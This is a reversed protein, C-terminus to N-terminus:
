SQWVLYKEPDPLALHPSNTSASLSSLKTKGLVKRQYKFLIVLVSAEDLLLHIQIRGSTAKPLALLHQSPVYLHHLIHIVQNIGKILQLTPSVQNALL